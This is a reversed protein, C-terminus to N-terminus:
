FSHIKENFAGKELMSFVEEAALFSGFGSFAEMGPKYPDCLERRRFFKHHRGEYLSCMEGTLFLKMARQLEASNVRLSEVKQKSFGLSEEISIGLLRAALAYRLGHSYFAVVRSPLGLDALLEEALRYVLEGFLAKKLEAADIKDLSLFIKIGGCNSSVVPVPSMLITIVTVTHRKSASPIVKHVEEICERAWGALKGADPGLNINRDALRKRLTDYSSSKAAAFLLGCRRFIKTIKLMGSNLFVAFDGSTELASAIGIAENMVRVDDSKPMGSLPGIKRSQLVEVLTGAFELYKELRSAPVIEPEFRGASTANAANEIGLYAWVHKDKTRPWLKKPDQELATSAGAAIPRYGFDQTDNESAFSDFNISFLNDVGEDAGRQSLKQRSLCACLGDGHRKTKLIHIVLASNICSALNCASIQEGHLAFAAPHCIMATGARIIEKREREGPLFYLVPEEAGMDVWEVELECIKLGGVSYVGFKRGLLRNPLQFGSVSSFLYKNGEGQRLIGGCGPMGARLCLGSSPVDAPSGAGVIYNGRNDRHYPLDGVVRKFVQDFAPVQPLHPLIHWGSIELLTKIYEPVM